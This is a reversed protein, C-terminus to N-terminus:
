GGVIDISLCFRNIDTNGLVSDPFVNIFRDGTRVLGKVPGFLPPSVANFHGTVVRRRGCILRLM